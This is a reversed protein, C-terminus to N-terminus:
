EQAMDNTDCIRLVAMSKKPFTALDTTPHVNLRQFGGLQSVM